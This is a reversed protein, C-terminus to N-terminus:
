CLALVLGFLEGLAAEHRAVFRAITAHDPVRNATMVRYAIDQGCHREIGRASRKETAYACLLLAVMMSPECAARGHGDGRYDAYFEGLGLGAVADIVLWALHDGPLWECLSRLLLFVQERGCGIFNEAMAPITKAAGSLM